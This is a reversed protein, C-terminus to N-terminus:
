VLYYLLQFVIDKGDWHDPFCHNGRHVSPEVTWSCLAWETSRFVGSCTYLFIAGGVDPDSSEEKRNNKSIRGGWSGATQPQPREGGHQNRFDDIVEPVKAVERAVRRSIWYSQRTWHCVILYHCLKCDAQTDLDEHHGVCGSWLSLDGRCSRSVKVKQSPVGGEWGQRRDQPLPLMRDLSLMGFRM